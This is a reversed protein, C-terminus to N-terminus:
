LITNSFRNGFFVVDDLLLTLGFRRSPQHKGCVGIKLRTGCLHSFGWHIKILNIFENLLIRFMIHPYRTMGIFSTIGRQIHLKRLLPGQENVVFKQIHSHGGIPHYHIRHAIIIRTTCICQLRMSMLLITTHIDTNDRLIKRKRNHITSLRRQHQFRGRIVFLFSVM